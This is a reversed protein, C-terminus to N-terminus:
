TNDGNYVQTPDCLSEVVRELERERERKSKEESTKVMEGVRLAVNERRETLKHPHDLM